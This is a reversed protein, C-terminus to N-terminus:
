RRGRYTGGIKGFQVWCNRHVQWRTVSKCACVISESLGSNSNCGGSLVICVSASEKIKRKWWKCFPTVLQLLSHAPAAQLSPAQQIPYQRRPLVSAVKIDVTARLSLDHSFENNQMTTRLSGFNSFRPKHFFYVCEKGCCVGWALKGESTGYTLIQCM